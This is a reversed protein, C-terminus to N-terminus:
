SFVVARFVAWPGVGGVIELGSRREHKRTKTIRGRRSDREKLARLGRDTQWSTSFPDNCNTMKSPNNLPESGNAECPEFIPRTATAGKEYAGGGGKHRDDGAVAQIAELQYQPSGDFQISM